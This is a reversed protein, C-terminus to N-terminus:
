RLGKKFPSFASGDNMEACVAEVAWLWHPGSVHSLQLPHERSVWCHPCLESHHVSGSPKTHFEWHAIGLFSLIAWSFLIMLYVYSFRVEISRVIQAFPSLLFVESCIPKVNFIIGGRQVHTLIKLM